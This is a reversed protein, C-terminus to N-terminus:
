CLPQWRPSCHKCQGGTCKSTVVPTSARFMIATRLRSGDPHAFTQLTRSTRIEDQLMYSADSRRCPQLASEPLYISCPIHQQLQILLLTSVSAKCCPAWRKGTIRLHLKAGPKDLANEQCVNPPQQASSRKCRLCIPGGVAAGIAWMTAHMNVALIRSTWDWPHSAVRPTSLM